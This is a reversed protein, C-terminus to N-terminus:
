RGCPPLDELYVPKRSELNEWTIKPHSPKDTFASIGTTIKRKGTLHNTSTLTMDGENRAFSSEELGILRFKGTELRFKFTDHSTWWTGASAFWDFEITIVGKAVKLEKFRDMYNDFELTYAPPIFKPYEGVKRYGEKDALLVVVVRPNGNQEYGDGRKTIKKPDTGERVIVLDAKGDANLDGEAVKLLKWGAPLHAQAAAPLALPAEAAQLGAVLCCLATLVLYLRGM